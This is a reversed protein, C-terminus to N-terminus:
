MNKYVSFIKRFSSQRTESEVGTEIRKGEVCVCEQENLEIWRLKGTNYEKANRALKCVSLPLPLSVNETERKRRAIRIHCYM